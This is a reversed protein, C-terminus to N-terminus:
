QRAKMAALELGVDWRRYGLSCCGTRLARGRVRVKLAAYRLLLRYREEIFTMLMQDSSICCACCLVGSGDSIFITLACPPHRPVPLRRLVRCAAILQPSLCMSKSGCIESHAFGRPVM